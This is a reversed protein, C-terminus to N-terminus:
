ASCSSPRAGRWVLEWPLGRKLANCQSFKIVKDHQLRGVIIGPAIGLTAAFRRISDETCDCSRRFQDYQTSPILADAAFEDAEREKADGVTDDEVFVERKGHRVIHGAEHFFSFWLQDDSRYRLSLQILAKAATLWRTAGSARTRPLEPVFVLAVGSDACLRISEPVSKDVTAVTLARIDALAKRFATGDFPRCVIQQAEVEGKRLWASVAGPAAEFARSRRFSAQPERVCLEEWREPSAVGFFDLLEQLQKVKDPFARIWGRKAMERVPIEKLWEAHARLRQQEAARVLAERYHSERANWFSAPIGLVRELQLATSPTIPAKGAIIENVNKPTTGARRALEAQTM